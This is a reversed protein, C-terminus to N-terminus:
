ERRMRRASERLRRMIERLSTVGFTRVISREIERIEIENYIRPEGYRMYFIALRIIRGPEVGVEKEDEDIPECEVGVTIVQPELWRDSLKNQAQAEVISSFLGEMEEVTRRLMGEYEDLLRRRCEEEEGRCYVYIKARFEAVPEPTRERRKERAYYEKLVSVRYCQEILEIKIREHKVEKILETVEFIGM